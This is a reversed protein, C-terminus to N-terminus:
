DSKCIFYAPVDVPWDLAINLVDCLKINLNLDPVDVPGDLAM